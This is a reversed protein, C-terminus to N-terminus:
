ALFQADIRYKGIDICIFNVDMATSEPVSRPQGVYFQRSLNQLNGLCGFIKDLGPQRYIKLGAIVQKRDTATSTIVSAVLVRECDARYARSAFGSGPAQRSIGAWFAVFAVFAVFAIWTYGAHRARLTVFTFLTIAARLPFRTVRSQGPFRTRRSM